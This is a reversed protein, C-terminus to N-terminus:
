VWVDSSPVSSILKSFKNGRFAVSASTLFRGSNRPAVKLRMVGEAGPALVSPSFEGSLCGCSRILSEFELSSSTRNTMRAEWILQSESASGVTLQGCDIAVTAIVEPESGTDATKELKGGSEAVSRSEARDHSSATDAVSGSGEVSDRCGGFIAMVACLGVAVAGRWRMLCQPEANVLRLCMTAPDGNRTM